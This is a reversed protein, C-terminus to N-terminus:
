PTVVVKGVMDHSQWHPGCLYDYTGPVEFTQEATEEPFLLEGPPQGADRFWTDHPTRKDINVWRVTTGVPVSISNPCFVYKYMTVVRVGPEEAPAHGYLERYREEAQACIKAIKEPNTEALAPSVLLGCLALLVLYKM